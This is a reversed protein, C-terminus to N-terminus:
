EQIWSEKLDTVAFHKVPLNAAQNAVAAGRVIEFQM